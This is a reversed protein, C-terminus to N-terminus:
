DCLLMELLEILKDLKEEEEEDEEEEEVIECEDIDFPLGDTTMALFTEKFHEAGDENQEAMADYINKILYMVEALLTKIDGRVSLVCKNEKPNSEFKIM